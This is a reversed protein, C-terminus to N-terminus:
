GNKEMEAILFMAIVTFHEAIAKDVVNGLLERAHKPHLTLRGVLLAVLYEMLAHGGGEGAGAVEGSLFAFM